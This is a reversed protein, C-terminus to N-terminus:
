LKFLTRQSGSSNWWREAEEEADYCFQIRNKTRDAWVNANGASGDATAEGREERLSDEMGQRMSLDRAEQETPSLILIPDSYYM